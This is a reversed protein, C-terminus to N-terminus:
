TETTLQVMKIVLFFMHKLRVVQIKSAGKWNLELIHKILGPMIYCRLSLSNLVMGHKSLDMLQGFASGKNLM